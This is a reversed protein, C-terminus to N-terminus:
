PARKHTRRQLHHLTPATNPTSNLASRAIRCDPAPAAYTELLIQKISMM